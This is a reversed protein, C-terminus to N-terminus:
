CAMRVARVAVAGIGKQGLKLTRTAPREQSGVTQNGAVSDETNSAMWPKLAGEELARLFQEGVPRSGVTAGIAKAAEAPTYLLAVSGSVKRVFGDAGLFSRGDLAKLAYNLDAKLQVAEAKQKTAIAKENAIFKWDKDQALLAYVYAFGNTAARIQEGCLSTVDELRIGKERACKMLKCVGFPTMHKALWELPQPLRVGAPMKAEANKSNDVPSDTQPLQRQISQEKKEISDRYADSMPAHRQAKLSPLDFGLWSVASTTLAIAGVQFGEVRSKVQSRLIWGQDELRALLRTVTALSYDLRIALTDRRVFVEEAPRDKTVCRLIEVLMNRDKKELLAFGGDRWAMARTIARMITLPLDKEAPEAAHAPQCLEAKGEVTTTQM